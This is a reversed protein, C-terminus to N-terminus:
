QIMYEQLLLKIITYIFGSRFTDLCLENKKYSKDCQSSSKQTHRSMNRSTNTDHMAIMIELPVSYHLHTVNQAWFFVWSSSSIFHNVAQWSSAMFQICTKQITGIGQLHFCMKVNTTSHSSLDPHGESLLFSSTHAFSCAKTVASWLSVLNSTYSLWPIAESKHLPIKIVSRLMLCTLLSWGMVASLVASQADGTQLRQSAWHASAFSFKKIFNYGRGWFLFVTLPLYNPSTSVVLSLTVCSSQSIGSVTYSLHM